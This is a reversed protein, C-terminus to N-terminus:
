KIYLDDNRVEKTSISMEEKVLFWLSLLIYLTQALEFEKSPQGDM